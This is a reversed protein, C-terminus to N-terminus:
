KEGQAVGDAFEQQDTRPGAATAAEEVPLETRLRPEEADQTETEAEGSGRTPMRAAKQETGAGVPDDPARREAGPGRFVDLLRQQSQKTEAVRCQIRLMSIATEPADPAHQRQRPADGVPHLRRRGHLPHSAPRPTPAGEHETAAVDDGGHHGPKPLAPALQQAANRAAHGSREDPEHQGAGAAPPQVHKRIDAVPLGTTQRGM